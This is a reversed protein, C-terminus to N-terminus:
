VRFGLCIGFGFDGQGFCKKSTKYESNITQKPNNLIKSKPNLM